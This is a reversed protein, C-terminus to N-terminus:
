ILNFFHNEFYLSIFHWYCLFKWRWNGFWSESISIIRDLNKKIFFNVAFFKKVKNVIEGVIGSWQGTQPDEKGNEIDKVSIQYKFKCRQAIYEILDIAFGEYLDIETTNQAIVVDQRHFLQTIILNSESSNQLLQM